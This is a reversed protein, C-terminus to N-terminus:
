RRGAQGQRGREFRGYVVGLVSGWVVHAAIMLASRRVPHQTAPRLLGITPLLGLYSVLWVALGYATGRVASHGPLRDVLPVYLVGALAGYGFHAGLTATVHQTESLHKRLGVRHTVRRTIQGPPLPYRERWPLLRHMAQMALTMPATAVFGAIAGAFPRSVPM